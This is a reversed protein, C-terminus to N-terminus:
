LSERLGRALRHQAVKARRARRSFVPAGRAPERYEFYQKLRLFHKEYLHYSLWACALGAGVVWTAVLLKALFTPLRSVPWFWSVTAALILSHFVYMAYSYKGIARLGSNELVRRLRSYEAADVAVALFAAFLVALASMGLTLVLKADIARDVLAPPVEPYFHRQGLALGVLLCGSGLALPRAWRRLRAWDAPDRLALAVWSGVLLGDLRCPTLCYACLRGSETSVMMLRLLLSGCTVGLCLRMLTGRPLARVAFTWFLYFHEEVALSWFSTYIPLRHGTLALRFNYYYLCLSCADERSLWPFLPCSLRSLVIGAFV